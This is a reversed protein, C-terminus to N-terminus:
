YGDSDSSASDKGFPFAAISSCDDSNSLDKILDDVSVVDLIGAPFAWNNYVKGHTGHNELKVNSESNNYYEIVKQCTFCSLKSMGIYVNGSLEGVKSKNHVYELVVMEAHQQENISSNNKVVYLKNEIGENREFYPLLEDLNFKVTHFQSLESKVKHILNHDSILGKKEEEDLEEALKKELDNSIKRLEKYKEGLRSFGDLKINTNKTNKSNVFLQQIGSFDYSSDGTQIHSYGRVLKLVCEMLSKETNKDNLISDVLIKRLNSSNLGHKIDSYFSKVIERVEMNVCAYEAKSCDSGHAVTNYSIYYEDNDESYAVAVCKKKCYVAIVKALYDLKKQQESDRILNKIRPGALSIPSEGDIRSGQYYKEQYQAAENLATKLQEKKHTAFM